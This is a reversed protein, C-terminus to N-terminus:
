TTPKWGCKTLMARMHAPPDATAAIPPKGAYLPVIVARSHLHLRDPRNVGAAHGYQDDGLVPCGLHAAHVRIQHTRGTLPRFEVWSMDGGTGSAVGLVRYDTMAKQGKADVIMRWGDKRVIKKLPQEVRGEDAKPRGAVVAWYIKEVQGAQFLRGLRALGKRNRGLVLCGSTERDLRHALAPNQKHGFRLAHFLAELNRGGGPGMHVPLGAPKDIIIMLADCHLVRRQLEEPTM